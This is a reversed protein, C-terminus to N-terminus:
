GEASRRAQKAEAITRLRAKADRVAVSVCATYDGFGTNTAKCVIKAASQIDSDIREPSKGTLSVRITSPGTRTVDLRATTPNAARRARKVAAFQSKADSVAETICAGNLTGCVTDAATKIEANVQLDSKGSLSIHVVPASPNSVRVDRANASVATVASAAVVLAALTAFKSM